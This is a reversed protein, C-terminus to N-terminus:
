CLPRTRYLRPVLQLFLLFQSIVLQIHINLLFLWTLWLGSVIYYSFYNAWSLLLITTFESVRKTQKIFCGGLLSLKQQHKSVPGRSSSVEAENFGWLYTLVTETVVPPFFDEYAAFESHVIRVCRMNGISTVHLVSVATHVAAHESDTQVRSPM